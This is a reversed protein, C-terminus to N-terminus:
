MPRDTLRSPPLTGDRPPGGGSWHGCAKIICGAITDAHYREKERDGDVAGGFHLMEHLMSKVPVNSSYFQPCIRIRGRARGSWMWVYADDDGCFLGKTRLCKIKPGRQCQQYLAGTVIERAKARLTTEGGGLLRDRCDASMVERMQAEPMDLFARLCQCSEIASRVVLDLDQKSDGCQGEVDFSYCGARGYAPVPHAGRPVLARKAGSVGVIV